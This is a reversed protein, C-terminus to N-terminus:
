VTVGRFRPAYGPFVANLDTAGLRRQAVEALVDRHDISIALDGQDLQQPALGPWDADVRGGAIRPGMIMMAGGHGHETGWSANEALRRGFESQVVLTYGVSSGALDQHFAAISATLDELLARLNPGSPDNQAHLDWGESHYHYTEVPADAKLMTAIEQMARGQRTVPYQAGNAPVYGSFDVAGIKAMAGIAVEASNRLEPATADFMRQFAERRAAVHGPAGPFRSNTPSILALSSALGRHERPVSVGVTLARLEGSQAPRRAALLRAVWGDGGGASAPDATAMRQLAAFHSRTGDALGSAHVFLLEGAQYAGLLPAAAPTLGFFGDLDIAGGPQGPAPVHLAPRAAVLRGQEGHPVIVGLADMGGNMVITILRDHPRDARPSQAAAGLSPLAFSGCGVASGILFRRRTFLPLAAEGQIPNPTIMPM